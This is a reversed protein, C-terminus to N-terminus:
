GRRPHREGRAREAGPDLPIRDAPRMLVEDDITQHISALDEDGLEQMGGSGERARLSSADATLELRTEAPNEALALTAEWSTVRIVLDHGAKAAAGVRKTHVSLSANEPGLRHM